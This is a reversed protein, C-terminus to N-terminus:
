VILLTGKDYLKHLYCSNKWRWYGAFPCYGAFWHALGMLLKLWLFVYGEHDSKNMKTYLPICTKRASVSLCRFPDYQSLVITLCHEAENTVQIIVLNSESKPFFFFYFNILTPYFHNSQFGYGKCCSAAKWNCDRCFRGHFKEVFFMYMCSITFLSFYFIFCFCSYFICSLEINTIFHIHM